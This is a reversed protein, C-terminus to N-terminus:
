LCASAEISFVFTSVDVSRCPARGSVRAPVTGPREEDRKAKASCGTVSHLQHHIQPLFVDASHSCSETYWGVIGEGRAKRRRRRWCDSPQQRPPNLVASDCINIQM